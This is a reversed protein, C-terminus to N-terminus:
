WIPKENPDVLRAIDEARFVSDLPDLFANFYEQQFWRDPMKSREGELFEKTFHPCQDATISFRQWDLDHDWTQYFWGVRGFATSLAVRRGQSAALMPTCTHYLSDPVRSAEEFFILNVQSFCRVTGESDPLGILRSGNALHLQLTSDAVAAPIEPGRLSYFFGKAKRVFEGSQRDSPSVVLVLAPAELLMTRLALAACALSKGTQRACLVIIKDCKSELIQRQWLYPDIGARRFIRAPDSWLRDSETLKGTAARRLLRLAWDPLRRPLSPTATLKPPM